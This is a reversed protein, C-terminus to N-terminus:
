ANREGRRELVATLTKAVGVLAVASLLGLGAYSGSVTHWWPAQHAAHHVEHGAARVACEAEVGLILTAWLLFPLKRQGASAKLTM